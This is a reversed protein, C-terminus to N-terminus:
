QIHVTALQLLNMVDKYIIRSLYSFYAITEVISALFLRAM